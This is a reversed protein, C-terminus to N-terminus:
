YVRAMFRVQPMDTEIVQGLALPTTANTARQGNNISTWDIRFINDYNRHFRDFSLEDRVYLLILLSCALGAALGLINLFGSVKDKALHRYASRIALGHM